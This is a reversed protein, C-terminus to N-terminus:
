PRCVKGSLRDSCDHLTSKTCCRNNIGPDGVRVAALQGSTLTSFQQLEACILALAGAFLMIAAVLLALRSQLAIGSFPLSTFRSLWGAEGSQWKKSNGQLLRALRYFLASRLM